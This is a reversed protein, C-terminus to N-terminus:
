SSMGAKNTTKLTNRYHLWVTADKEDITIRKKEKKKENEPRDGWCIELFGEKSTKKGEM